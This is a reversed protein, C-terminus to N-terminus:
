ANEDPKGVAQKLWAEAKDEQSTPFFRMEAKAFPATLTTGWEELETEGIVAIRGFDGRYKLDFELEKWLAGIEWGRFDELKIMVRLAGECLELAHELEPIANDYDKTTLTGSARMVILDRDTSHEITIM